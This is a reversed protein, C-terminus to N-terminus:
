LSLIFCRSADALVWGEWTVSVVVCPRTDLSFTWRNNICLSYVYLRMRSCGVYSMFVNEDLDQRWQAWWLRANSPLFFFTSSMAVFWLQAEKAFIWVSLFLCVFRFYGLNVCIWPMKSRRSKKGRGVMRNTQTYDAGLRYQINQLVSIHSSFMENPPLSLSPRSKTRKRRKAGRPSACM